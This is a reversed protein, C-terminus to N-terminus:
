AQASARLQGIAQLRARMSPHTLSKDDLTTGNVECFRELAQAVRESDGILEVARRDAEFEWRRQVLSPLFQWFIAIGLGGLLATGVNHGLTGVVAGYYLAHLVFGVCAVPLFRRTVDRNLVHGIEHALIAKIDDVSLAELLGRGVIIFHRYLGGTVMANMM